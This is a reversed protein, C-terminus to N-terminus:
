GKKCKSIVMNCITLIAIIVIFSIMKEIIMIPTSLNENYGMFLVMLKNVIPIMITQHWGYYILTNKGIYNILKVDFWHSFIVVCFVGCFASIITLVPFGYSSAFM